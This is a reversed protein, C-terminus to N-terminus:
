SLLTMFIKLAVSWTAEIIKNSVRVSTIATTLALSTKVQEIDENIQVREEITKCTMLALTYRVLRETDKDFEEERVGKLNLGKKFDKLEELVDDVMIDNTWSM